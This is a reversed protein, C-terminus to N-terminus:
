ANKVENWADLIYQLIIREEVFTKQSIQFSKELGSSIQYTQIALKM